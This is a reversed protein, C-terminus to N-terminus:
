LINNNLSDVFPVSTKHILWPYTIHTSKGIKGIISLHKIVRGGEGARRMEYIEPSHSTLTIDISIDDDNNAERVRQGVYM